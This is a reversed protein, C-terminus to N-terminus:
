PVGVASILQFAVESQRAAESQRVLKRFNELDAGQLSARKTRPFNMPDVAQGNNIVEFHLHPGTSRGTSGVFGIV